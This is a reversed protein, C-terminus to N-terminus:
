VGALRLQKSGDVQATLTIVVDAKASAIEQIAELDELSVTGIIAVKCDMDLSYTPIAAWTAALDGPEPNVLRVSIKQKPAPM